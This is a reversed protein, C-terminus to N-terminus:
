IPTKNTRITPLTQSVSLRNYIGLTKYVVSCISPSGNEFIAKNHEMWIKWSVLAPLTAFEPAQTIWKDYCAKVSIGDWDYRLNLVGLILLWVQKTFYCNILLHSVTEPGKTCLICFSPGEWGKAL